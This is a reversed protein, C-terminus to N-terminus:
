LCLRRMWRMLVNRCSLSRGVVSNTPDRTVFFAAVYLNVKHHLELPLGDADIPGHGMDMSALCDERSFDITAHVLVLLVIALGVLVCCRVIRNGIYPM